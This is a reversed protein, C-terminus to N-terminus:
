MDYGKPWRIIFDDWQAALAAEIVEEGTADDKGFRM